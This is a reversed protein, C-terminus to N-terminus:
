GLKEKYIIMTCDYKFKNVFSAIITGTIDFFSIRKDINQVQNMKINDFGCRKILVLKSLDM